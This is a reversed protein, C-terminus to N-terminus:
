QKVVKLVKSEGNSYELQLNYIGVPYKIFDIIANQESGSAPFKDLVKGSMDIISIAQVTKNTNETWKIYLESRVPNPYYSIGNSKDIELLGSDANRLADQSLQKGAGPALYVMYRHTENGSRDYFFRIANRELLSVPEALPIFTGDNGPQLQAFAFSTSFVLSLLTIKKM